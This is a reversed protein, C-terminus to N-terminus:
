KSYKNILEEQLEDDVPASENYLAITIKSHLREGQGTLGFDVSGEKSDYNYALINKFIKKLKKNEDVLDSMKKFDKIDLHDITKLISDFAQDMLDDRLPLWVDNNLSDKGHLYEIVYYFDANIMSNESNIPDAKICKVVRINFVESQNQLESEFIITNQM